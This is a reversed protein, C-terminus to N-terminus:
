YEQYYNNFIEMAMSFAGGSITHLAEESLEGPEVGDMVRAIGLLNEVFEYIPMGELYPKAVLYAGEPTTQRLFEERVEADEVLVRLFNEM